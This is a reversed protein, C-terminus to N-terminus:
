EIQSLRNVVGLTSIRRPQVELSELLAEDCEPCIVKGSQLAIKFYGKCNCKVGDREDYSAERGYVKYDIYFFDIDDHESEPAGDDAGGGYQVGYQVGEGDIDWLINNCTDVCIKGDRKFVYTNYNTSNMTMPTDVDLRLGEIARIIEEGSPEREEKGDRTDYEAYREARSMIMSKMVDWVTKYETEQSTDIIFSSSSSNSVFGQRTKM